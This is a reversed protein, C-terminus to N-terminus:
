GNVHDAEADIADPDTGNAVADRVTKLWPTAHHGPRRAEAAKMVDDIVRLCRNTESVCWAEIERRADGSLSHRLEIAQAHRDLLRRMADVGGEVHAGERIYDCFDDDDSLMRLAAGAEEDTTAKAM